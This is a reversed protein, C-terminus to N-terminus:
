QLNLTKVFKDDSTILRYFSDIEGPPVALSFKLSLWPVGPKVETADSLCDAARKEAVQMVKKLASQKLSNLM